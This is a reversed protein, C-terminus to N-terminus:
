SEITKRFAPFLPALELDKWRNRLVEEMDRALGAIAPYRSLEELTNAVQALWLLTRQRVTALEPHLKHDSPEEILRKYDLLFGLWWACGAAIGDYFIRDDQAAPIARSLQVRYANEIQTVVEPPIGAVQWSTPFPIRWFVADIFSPATFANELDIFCGGERRRVFNEPCPDGHVITLFESDSERWESLNRFEVLADASDIQLAGSINIVASFNISTLQLDRHTITPPRHQASWAHLRGMTIAMDILGATASEADDGLLLKDVTNSGVDEMVLLRHQENYGLIKPVVGSNALGTYVNIQRTQKVFVSHTGEQVKWVDHDPIQSWSFHKDDGFQSYLIKEACERVVKDM